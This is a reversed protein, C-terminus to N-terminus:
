AQEGFLARKIAAYVESVRAERCNLSRWVNGKVAKTGDPRRLEVVVRVRGVADDTNVSKRGQRNCVPVFLTKASAVGNSKPKRGAAKKASAGQSVAKKGSRVGM